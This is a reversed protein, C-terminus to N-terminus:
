ADAPTAPRAPNTVVRLLGYGMLASCCSGILVGIKAEDELVINGPFALAGIFLSMTFGIGCLVAIGYIQPWSADRIPEALGLKTSIWVSGFVGIQKGFFLGLAIGLPLPSLLQAGDLNSLSVGANAFAFLPIIAYAVWPALAHELRHLPSEVADPAAPTKIIPILMGTVAGAITAHIGSLLVFYWLVLFGIMYPWLARVGRKGMCHLILGTAVAGCLPLTTLSGTYVVAIIAVAAMDDVIAVTTLFLKLSTPVRRGLLSLVGLAFAIDTAAPIAWGHSLRGHPGVVALFILAPVSLGSIAAIVPLRREPWSALRGDTFERKIELTVFLFFVAMLGDNIWHHVTMLGLKPSLSPGIPAHLVAFYHAAFSSNALLLALVAAGILVAGGKAESQLFARLASIPKVFAGVTNANLEPPASAKVGV